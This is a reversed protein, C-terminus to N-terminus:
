RIECNLREQILATSSFYKDSYEKNKNSFVIVFPHGIHEDVYMYYYVWYGNRLGKAARYKTKKKAVELEGQSFEAQHLTTDAAALAPIEAITAGPAMCILIYENEPMRIVRNIALSLGRIECYEQYFKEVYKDAPVVAEGTKLSFCSQLGFEVTGERNKSSCGGFVAVLFVTFIAIVM